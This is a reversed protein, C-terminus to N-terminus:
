RPAPLPYRRHELFGSSLLVTAISCFEELPFNAELQDSAIMAAHIEALTRVGDCYGALVAVWPDVFADSALPSDVRLRFRVPMLQGERSEHTVDLRLGRAHRLASGPLQEQFRTQAADEEFRCLWEVTETGAKAAKLRRATAVPRPASARQIVITGYFLANVKMEEFQLAREGLEARRNKAKTVARIFEAPRKHIESAILFVDFESEHPGLWGRLRQELSNGERDTAMSVGYFRGGPKLHAPLGEVIRRLIQEGDDGGDRFLLTNERSPVYPPHAAIRDFMKGNVAEYLDGQASTVNDLGNLLRNFESFHVSRAGLDTAWARQAYRAALLAAVGTGSCLDLFEECPTRPLISLFRQTTVTIAAYVVDAPLKEGPLPIRLFTRDSAVYFDLVPYLFASAYCVDPEDPHRIVVGLDELAQLLEPGVWELIVAEPIPEGDMLLRVLLDARDRIADDRKQKGEREQRDEFITKFEFISDIGASACVAAEDYGAATLAERLRAFQDKTGIKPPTM